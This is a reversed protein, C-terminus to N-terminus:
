SLLKAEQRRKKFKKIAKGKLSNLRIGVKEYDSAIESAIDYNSMSPVIM